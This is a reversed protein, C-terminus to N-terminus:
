QESREKENFEIKQQLFEDAYFEKYSKGSIWWRFCTEADNFNRDIYGNDILWQITKIWNRRVHPWRKIEKAKQRYQSM